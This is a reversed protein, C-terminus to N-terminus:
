AKRLNKSVALVYGSYLTARPYVNYLPQYTVAWTICNFYFHVVGVFHPKTRIHVYYLCIIIVFVNRKVFCYCIVLVGLWYYHLIEYRFFRNGWFNRRWLLARWARRRPLIYVALTQGSPTVVLFALSFAFLVMYIYILLLIIIKYPSKLLHFLDLIPCLYM